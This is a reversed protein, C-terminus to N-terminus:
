LVFVADSAWYLAAARHLDVADLHVADVYLNRDTEATGGWGDNLFRVTLARGHPDDLRIDLLDQAGAAHDASAVGEGLLMGDLLVAYRADGQWADGSLSLRAVHAGAGLMPIDAAPLTPAAIAYTPDRAFDAASTFPAGDARLARYATAAAVSGTV